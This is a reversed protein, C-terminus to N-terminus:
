RQFESPQNRYTPLHPMTSCVGMTAIYGDFNLCQPTCRPCRLPRTWYLFSHVVKWIRMTGREVRSMCTNLLMAMPYDRWMGLTFIAGFLGGINSVESVEDRKQPPEMKWTCSIMCCLLDAACIPVLSKGSVCIFPSKGDVTNFVRSQSEQERKRNWSM